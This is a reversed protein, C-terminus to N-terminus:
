WRRRRIPAPISGDRVPAFAPPRVAVGGGGSSASSTPAANGRRRAAAGYFAKAAEWKRVTDVDVAGRKDVLWSRAAAALHPELAGPSVAGLDGGLLERAENEADDIAQVVAAEGESGALSLVAQEGGGRRYLEELTLVTPM